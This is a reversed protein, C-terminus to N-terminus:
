NSLLKKFAITAFCYDIGEYSFDNVSRGWDPPYLLHCAKSQLFPVIRSTLDLATYFRHCTAPLPRGPIWDDKFDVTLLGHGGPRIMSVMSELFALDDRVHELVSTAFILDFQKGPNMAAYAEMGTNVVPDIGTINWAGDWLAQFATDEFCGACLIPDAIGCLWRVASLIWAQQVNARAVKRAMMDPVLFRLTDIETAYLRRHEDNLTTNNV